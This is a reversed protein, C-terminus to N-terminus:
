GRLGALAPIATKALEVYEADLEVGVSQYGCHEAAALTSGSGAFPDVVVGTGLPLIARVIQRLFAQPKLSPHPALRREAPRAPHSMIVDGFPREASPRRLGGTGWTRLNDAVRGPFPKRFLVWPEWMSRPMVTVDAFEEHANKPRDGGRMTMTLRAIEGRRELGGRALAGSVLHCLLPNSAITVHAGPVLKPYASKAFREFFAGLNERDIDSLVTFRPLPAREHGDFSPPIRWVGGRGARLKAVQEASYEVIGYPPDTVIGHISEDPQMSLWHFADGHFLRTRGFSFAMSLPSPTTPEFFRLTYQGRATRVFTQGENLNLYSRVSSASVEPLDERVADYIEDLSAPADRLRLFEIVADRM